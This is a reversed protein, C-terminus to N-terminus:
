IMDLIRIRTSCTMAPPLRHRITWSTKRLVLAWKSSRTISIAHPKCLKLVANRYLITSHTNDGRNNRIIDIEDVSDLSVVPFELDTISTMNMAPSYLMQRVRRGPHCRPSLLPGLGLPLAPAPFRGVHWSEIRARFVHSEGHEGAGRPV